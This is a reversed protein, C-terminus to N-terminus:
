GGAMGRRVAEISVNDSKPQMGVFGTGKTCFDSQMYFRKKSNWRNLCPDSILAVIVKNWAEECEDTWDDPTIQKDWQQSDTLVRLSAIKMEFFPIYKAYFNAFAIFAAVARLNAPKPWSKM